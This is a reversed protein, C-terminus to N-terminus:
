TLGSGTIVASSASLFVITAMGYLGITRSGTTSSTQGAWQLTVGSGQTITQSSGSNNYITVVMGASMISNNVTVGGTTISIVKGNDSAAVVYASTQSNIPLSRVNGSVDSILGAGPDTTTGVSLGGNIRMRETGATQFAIQGAGGGYGANIVGLGTADSSLNLGNGDGNEWKIRVTGIAELKQSPSTVGIGVNGTTYSINAGSTVWQSPTISSGNATLTGAITVSQDSGSITMATTNSSGTKIVLNGTTDGIQVLATTLTTGSTITSM